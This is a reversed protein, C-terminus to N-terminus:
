PFLSRSFLKFRGKVAVHAQHRGRTDDNATEEAGLQANNTQDHQCCQEQEAEESRQEVVFPALDLDVLARDYLVRGLRDLVFLVTFRMGNILNGFFGFLFVRQCGDARLM